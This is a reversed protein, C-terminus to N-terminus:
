LLKFDYFTLNQSEQLGGKGLSDSVDRGAELLSEQRGAARNGWGLEEPIESTPLNQFTANM